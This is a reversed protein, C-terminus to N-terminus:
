RQPLSPNVLPLTLWFTTGDSLKSDAGITGGHADIIQQAIHLGLGVSLHRRRHGQSYLNFLQACQDATMGVGNDRVTCHIHPQPSSVVSATLWITLGPPNHHLANIMLNHFVRWLQTGDGTLPPLTPSIQNHVTINAESLQPSLEQCISEVLAYLHVTQRQLTLHKLNNNHAELLSNILVLQRDGSQLMQELLSRPMSITNAKHQDLLSKILLQTGTVPNRLDHSVAHLFTKVEQRAEFEQYRLREYLYVGLDAVICVWVLYIYAGITGFLVDLRDIADEATFFAVIVLVTLPVLLTLQSRVHLQWRVPVLTSQALFLMTWVAVDTTDINRALVGAGLLTLSVGASIFWFILGAHRKGWAMTPFKLGLLFIAGIVGDVVFNSWDVAEPIAFFTWIEFLFISVLVLLLLWILLKLRQCFFRQRWQKYASLVSLSTPQKPFFRRWWASLRNLM